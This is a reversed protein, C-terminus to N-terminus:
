PGNRLTQEAEAVPPQAAQILTARRALTDNLILRLLRLAEILRPDEIAYEVSAGQRTARVLGRERLQRLHRSAAPQPVGILEALEGVTHPQEDLTYLLMLRHPDALAGCLEAHLLYLEQTLKADM